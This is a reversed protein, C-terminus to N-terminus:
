PIKSWNKPILSYLAYTSWPLKFLITVRWIVILAVIMFSICTAYAAGIPGFSLILYYNLILNLIVNLLALYALQNTKKSYFIFGAFLIYIGWFFYSL